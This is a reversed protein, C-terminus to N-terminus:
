DPVDDAHHWFERVYGWRYLTLAFYAGSSFKITKIIKSEIKRLWVRSNKIKKIRHCIDQLTLPVYGARNSPKLMIFVLAIDSCQNKQIHYIRYTPPYSQWLLLFKALLFYLQSAERIFFISGCIVLLVAKCMLIYGAFVLATSYSWRKIAPFLKPFMQRTKDM